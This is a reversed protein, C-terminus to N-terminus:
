CGARLLRARRRPSRMRAGPSWTSQGSLVNEPRLFTNGPWLFTGTLSLFADKSRLSARKSRPFAPKPALFVPRQTLSVREFGLLVRRLGLFASKRGSIRGPVRDVSTPERAGGGSGRVRTAAASALGVHEEDVRAADEPHQPDFPGIAPLSRGNESRPTKTILALPLRVTVQVVGVPKV